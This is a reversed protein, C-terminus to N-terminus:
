SASAQEARAAEALNAFLAIVLPRRDLNFIEADRASLRLKDWVEALPALSAPSAGAAVDHLRSTLHDEITQRLVAMNEAGARGDVAAALDRVAKSDLRPLTDLMHVIRRRFAATDEDLYKIAERVSGASANAAEVHREGPLDAWPPLDATIAAVTEAPLPQLRLLRCRSRITPLLKGPAHSVLLFLAQRPPEELMKLLANAANINMEDVSDIIVIRWGGSVATREFLRTGDRIDDVRIEGSLVKREPVWSRRVTALDPFSGAVIQRSAGSEPPVALDAAVAVDPTAADPNAALFKAIRYALSAKGIGVPGSIIWAHHMRGSRYAELFAAEAAEHGRLRTIDRPHPADLFRDAEPLGDDTSVPRKM